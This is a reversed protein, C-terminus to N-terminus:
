PRKGSSRSVLVPTNEQACLLLAVDYFNDLEFSPDVAYIRTPRTEDKLRLLFLSGTECEINRLPAAGETRPADVTYCGSKTIRVAENEVMLDQPSVCDLLGRETREDLEAIKADLRGIAQDQLEAIQEQTQSVIKFGFGEISEVIESSFAAVGLATVAAIALITYARNTEQTIPRVFPRDRSYISRVAGAIVLACLFAALVWLLFTM